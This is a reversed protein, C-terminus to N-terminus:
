TTRERQPKKDYAPQQRRLDTDVAELSYDNFAGAKM